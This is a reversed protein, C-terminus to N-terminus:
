ISDAEVYGNMVAYITLGSLSRINLKEMIRKRHSIVTTLGINLREAVEKNLLGHVLLVLVEIERASLGNPETRPIEPVPTTKGRGHASQQLILLNRVLREEPLYINLTHFDGFQPGATNGNVLVITKHRREGFFAAHELLVQSSIFYHYFMDPTDRMLEAFSNFTRAVAGPMMREILAQLGICTLTNAHIIAIEPAHMQPLQPTPTM